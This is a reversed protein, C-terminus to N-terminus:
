WRRLPRLKSRRIWQKLGTYEGELITVHVGRDDSALNGGDHDVRVRTGVPVHATRFEYWGQRNVTGEVDIEVSPSDAKYLVAGSGEAMRSNDPGTNMCGTMLGAAMAVALALRRRTESSFDM